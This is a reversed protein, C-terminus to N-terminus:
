PRVRRHAARDEPDRYCVTVACVEDGLFAAATLAESTLRSLSSVPVIVVSRDRHPPEPM